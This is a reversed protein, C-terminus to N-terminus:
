TSIDSGLEKILLEKEEESLEKAGEKTITVADFYNGSGIDRKMAATLAKLALSLGDEVSMDPRYESELVGYAVPSGSGTAAYKDEVLSGLLDLRYLTFSGDGNMGGILLETVLPYLRNQFLIYSLLSAAEKVTSLRNSRFEHLKLNYRLVDVLAQADALVGAISMAIHPTIIFIKRGRKHAVLFGSTVRTDAVMVVGDRCTLGITTTGRNPTLIKDQRPVM